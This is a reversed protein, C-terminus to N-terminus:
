GGVVHPTDPEIDPGSDPAALGYLILPLPRAERFELYREPEAPDSVCEGNPGTLLRVVLGTDTDCARCDEVLKGAGDFVLWPYHPPFVSGPHRYPEAAYLPM